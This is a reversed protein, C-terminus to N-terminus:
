GRQASELIPTQLDVLQPLPLELVTALRRLRVVEIGHTGKEVLSIFSRSVDARRGLEEQTLDKMVRLLRVRKGLARQFAAEDDGNM